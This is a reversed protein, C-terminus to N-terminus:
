ETSVADSKHSVLFSPEGNENYAPNGDADLIRVIKLVTTKLRVTGGDLFSYENWDEKTINFDQELGDADQGDIKIRVKRPM